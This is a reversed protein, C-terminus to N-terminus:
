CVRPSHSKLKIEQWAALVGVLFNQEKMESTTVKRSFIHCKDAQELRLRIEKKLHSEKKNVRAIGLSDGLFEWIFDGPKGPDFELQKNNRIVIPDFKPDRIRQSILYDLKHGVSEPWELSPGCAIFGMARGRNFVNEKPIHKSLHDFQDNRDLQGLKYNAYNPRRKSTLEANKVASFTQNTPPQKEQIPYEPETLSAFNGKTSRDIKSKIDHLFRKKAETGDVADTLDIYIIPKLLGDLRTPKVMVLILPQEEGTIDKALSAKWEAKTYDSKFYNPTIVAITREAETLGEQMKDMFSNGTRFDDSQIFTSYGEKRLVWNIWVAYEKDVGTYSIFFDKM